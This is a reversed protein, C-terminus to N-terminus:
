RRKTKLTDLNVILNNFNAEEQYKKYGFPNCIVPIGKIDYSLRSHVHGHIILSIKSMHLSIFDSITKSNVYSSIVPHNVYKPTIAGPAFGSHTVLIINMDSDSFKDYINKIAEMSEYFMKRCHEPNLREMDGDNDYYGFKFDNMYFMANVMNDHLSGGHGYDTWLTSGIFVVDNVIKYDNELYTINTTKPFEEKYESHLQQIPKSEYNYVIHNGGVFVVNSFRAQLFRKTEDLSGSIDGAIVTLTDPKRSTVKDIFLDPANNYRNMDVHLDSIIRIDM